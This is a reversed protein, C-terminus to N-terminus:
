RRAIQRSVFPLETIQPGGARAAPKDGFAMVTGTIAAVAAMAAMVTIAGGLLM